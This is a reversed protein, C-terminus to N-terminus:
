SYFYILSTTTKTYKNQESNNHIPTNRIILVSIILQLTVCHMLLVNDQNYKIENRSSQRSQNIKNQKRYLVFFSDQGTLKPTAYIYKRKHLFILDNCNKKSLSNRAFILWDDLMYNLKFYFLLFPM